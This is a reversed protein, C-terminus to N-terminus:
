MAWYAGYDPSQPPPPSHVGLPLLLGGGGGGSSSPPHVGPHQTPAPPAYHNVSGYNQVGGELRSPPSTNNAEAMTYPSTLALSHLKAEEEPTLPIHEIREVCAMVWQWKANSGYFIQYRAHLRLARMDKRLCKFTLNLVETYPVPSQQYILHIMKKKHEDELYTIRQSSMGLLEHSAFGTLRCFATNAYVITPPKMDEGLHRPRVSYAWCPKRIDDVVFPISPSGLDYDALFPFHQLINQRAVVLSDHLSAYSPFSPEMIMSHLPQLSTSAATPGGANFSLYHSSSGRGSAYIAGGGPTSAYLSSSSTLHASPYASTPSTSSSTQSSPLSGAVTKELDTQRKKLAEMESQVTKVTKKLDKIEQVLLSLLADMAPPPPPPSAPPAVPSASSSLTSVNFTPSPLTTSPSASQIFSAFHSTSSSGPGSGSPSHTISATAAFQQHQPQLQPQPQPQQPQPQQSPQPQPQPQQAHNPLAAHPLGAGNQQPQTHSPQPLTPQQQQHHYHQPPPPLTQMPSGNHVFLSIFSSPVPYPSLAIPTMPQLQAAPSSRPGNGHGHGSGAAVPQPQLLPGPGTATATTTSAQGDDETKPKKDLRPPRGRKKPETFQCKDPTGETVCRRCPKTGTCATHAIRCLVCAQALAPQKRKLPAAIATMM